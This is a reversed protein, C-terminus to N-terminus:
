NNVVEFSSIMKEAIPLYDNYEESPSGFTIDYLINDKTAFVELLKSPIGIEAAPLTYVIRRAPTGDQLQSENSNILTFGTLSENSNYLSNYSALIQAVEENLNQTSPVMCVSMGVITRGHSIFAVCNDKFVKYDQSIVRWNSPYQIKIGLNSQFISEGLKSNEYTLFNIAPSFETMGTTNSPSTMNESTEEISASDSMANRSIGFQRGALNLHTLATNTDGNQINQIADNLLIRVSDISSSANASSSLEQLAPNSHTLATNTDGNQLDEIADTILTRVSENNTQAFTQPALNFWPLLSILVVLVVVSIINDM